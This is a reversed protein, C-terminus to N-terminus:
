PRTPSWAAVIESCTRLTRGQVFRMVIFLRDRHEFFGLMSVAPHELKALVKAENVFQLHISGEGMPCSCRRAVVRETVTHVARYVRGM